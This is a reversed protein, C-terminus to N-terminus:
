VLWTDREADSWGMNGTCYDDHRQPGDVGNAEPYFWVSFLYGNSAVEDVFLYGVTESTGDPDPQAITVRAQGRDNLAVGVGLVDIEYTYEPCLCGDPRPKADGCDYRDPNSGHDATALPALLALVLILTTRMPLTPRM